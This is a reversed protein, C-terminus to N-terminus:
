INAAREKTTNYELKDEISTSDFIFGRDYSIVPRFPLKEGFPNEYSTIIIKPGFKSLKDGLMKMAKATLQRPIAVWLYKVDEGLSVSFSRESIWLNKEGKIDNLGELVLSKVKEKLDKDAKGKEIGWCVFYQKGEVEPYLYFIKKTL